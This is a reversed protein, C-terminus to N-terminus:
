EPSAEPHDTTTPDPTWDHGRVEEKVEVSDNQQGLYARLASSIFGSRTATGRRAEAEAFLSDPVYVHFKM